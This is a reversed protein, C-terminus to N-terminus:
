CNLLNNWLLFERFRTHGKETSTSSRQNLLIGVHLLSLILRVTCGYIGDERWELGRVRHIYMFCFLYETTVSRCGSSLSEMDIHYM